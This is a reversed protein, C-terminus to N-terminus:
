GKSLPRMMPLRAARKDLTVTHRCGANRDLEGIVADAFDFGADVQGLARRVTESEDVRIEVSNLLGRIVTAVDQVAFGYGRRLVWFFEILAVISVHGPEDETLSEMFETAKGSQGPDDQVVYRVLVNTDIGIV